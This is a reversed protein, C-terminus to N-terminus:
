DEPVDARYVLAGDSWAPLDDLEEYPSADIIVDPRQGDELAALFGRDALAADLVPRAAALIRQFREDGLEDRFTALTQGTVIISFWGLVEGDATVRLLMRHADRELVRNLLRGNMEELRLEILM